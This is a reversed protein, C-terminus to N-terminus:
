GRRRRAAGLGLLGSGLLALTAPEPASLPTPLGAFGAYALLDAGNGCFSPTGNTSTHQYTDIDDPAVCARFPSDAANPNIFELNFTTTYTTGPTSDPLAINQFIGDYGQASGDEWFTTGPASGSDPWTLGSGFAPSGEATGPNSNNYGAFLGQNFVCWAGTSCATYDPTSPILTVPNVFNPDTVLNGSVGTTLSVNSFGFYGPDARFAFTLTLLPGAGAPVTFQASYQQVACTGGACFGSDDYSSAVPTTSTPTQTPNAGPNALDMFQFGSSPAIPPGLNQAEAHMCPLGLVAALLGTTVLYRM